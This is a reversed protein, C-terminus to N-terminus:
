NESEDKGKIKKWYQAEGCDIMADKYYGGEHIGCHLRFKGMLEEGEALIFNVDLATGRCM